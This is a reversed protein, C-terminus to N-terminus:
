IRPRFYRYVAPHFNARGSRPGSGYRISGTTLLTLNNVRVVILERIFGVISNNSGVRVGLDVGRGVAPIRGRAHFNILIDRRTVHACTVTVQRSTFGTAAVWTTRRDSDAPTNNATRPDTANNAAVDAATVTADDDAAADTTADATADAYWAM